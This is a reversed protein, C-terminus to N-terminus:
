CLMGWLLYGNCGDFGTGPVASFVPFSAPNIVPLKSFQSIFVATRVSM